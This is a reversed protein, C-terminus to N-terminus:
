RDEPQPDPAAKVWQQWALFILYRIFIAEEPSFRLLVLIADLAGHWTWSRGTTGTM